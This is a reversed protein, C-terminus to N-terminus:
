QKSKEKEQNNRKDAFEKADRATLGLVITKLTASNIIKWSPPNENDLQAIWLQKM